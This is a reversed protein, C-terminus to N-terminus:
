CMRIHVTVYYLVTCCTNVCLFTNAHSVFFAHAILPRRLHTSCVQQRRCENLPIKLISLINNAKEDLLSAKTTVFLLCPCVCQQSICVIGYRQLMVTESFVACVKQGENSNLYATDSKLHVSMGSILQLTIFLGVSLCVFLCVGLVTVRM